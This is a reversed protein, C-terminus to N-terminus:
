NVTVIINRVVGSTTRVSVIAKGSSKGHITGWQSVSVISSNSSTYYIKDTTNLPSYTVELKHTDSVGISYSSKNVSLTTIPNQAINVVHVTKNGRYDIAYFTYVGPNKFRLTTKGDKLTLTSGVNGSTFDSISKKGYAYRVLKVDSLEDLVSLNVTITNNMSYRFSTSILPPKTDDNVKYTFTNENGAYDSVYFTYTGAKSLSLTSDIIETGSTGKKFSKTNKNGYLYRITRIGSGGKDNPYLGLMIKNQDFYTNISLTPAKTDIVLYPMSQVMLFADPIGATAINGRLSALPKVNMKIVDKVSKPSINKSCSYLIAALGTIHPAAMSSGSLTAYNGVVTSLINMGPAAIDVSKKGYNSKTTLAGFENIFTVAMVNPLDFNAPYMGVVDNNDGTNGAATVFLMPSQSMTQELAKSYVSSGWSLNVVDAGMATAYKIALIADAISGKGKPGGHIKLSMIKVDINSAIGAIGINNNATAAIIGACHTGHDDNDDSSARIEETKVDMEYHCVTNDDNYFDWGFIDDIYGNKDNDIGDGPIEGKNVWMSNMLDPHNNDVGTDIVAVIVERTKVDKKNYISWSEPIELDVDKASSVTYLQNDAFQAYYGPNEHSWQSSSYPDKTYTLEIEHNYDLSSVDESNDLKHYLDKAIEKNNATILMYDEFNRTITIQDEFSQLLSAKEHDSVQANWLVIIEESVPASLPEIGQSNQRVAITTTLLLSMLMTLALCKYTKHYLKM